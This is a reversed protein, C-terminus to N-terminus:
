SPGAILGSRPTSGPTETPRSRRLACVPLSVILALLALAALMGTAWPRPLALQAVALLTISGALFAAAASVWGRSWRRAAIAGAVAVAALGASKGVMAAVVTGVHLWDGPHVRGVNAAAVITAEWVRGGTVLWEAGYYLTVVIAGPVVLRAPSSSGPRGRLRGVAALAASLAWAGLLHQKVCASLGFLVSALGLRRGSAALSELVLVVGWTQLAVGAMDPRVAFPQGALVPSSAVLLASWWGSRAPLGGTRGLRYTAGMTALLGIASILRGSLRAAEVPHLGARAMPWALLAAARYYLPAHILVLPNSGGFPGYLERPGAVLQRAVSMMLPSEYRDFDESGLALTLRFGLLVCVSATLISTIGVSPRRSGRRGSAHAEDM